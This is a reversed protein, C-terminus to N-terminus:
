SSKVKKLATKFLQSESASLDKAPKKKNKSSLSPTDEIKDM